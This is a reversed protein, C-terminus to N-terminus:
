PSAAGPAWWYGQGGKRTAAQNARKFSDRYHPDLLSQLEEWFFRDVPLKTYWTNPTWREGTKFIESATGSTARQGQKDFLERKLPAMGTRRYHRRGLGGIPGGGYAGAGATVNGNGLLKPSCIAMSAAPAEAKAFSRIWFMPDRAPMSDSEEGALVAAAQLSVAGAAMSMLTFAIGYKVRDSGTGM